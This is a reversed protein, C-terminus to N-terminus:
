KKNTQKSKKSKKSKTQKSKKSKKSKTQKSKKSKKSKTQKSKKSKTQKTKKSKKKGGGFDTFFTKGASLTEYREKLVKKLRALEQECISKLLPNLENLQCSLETLEIEKKLKEIPDMEIRLEQELFAIRQKMKKERDHANESAEELERLRQEQEPSGKMEIGLSEQQPEPQDRKFLTKFWSM